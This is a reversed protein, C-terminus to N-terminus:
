QLTVRVDERNNHNLCSSAIWFAQVGAKRAAREATACLQRFDSETQFQNATYGVFIYNTLNRRRYLSWDSISILDHGELELSESNRLVFLKRPGHIRENIALLGDPSGDRAKPVAGDRKMQEDPARSLAQNHVQAEALTLSPDTSEKPKAELVNRTLKPYRNFRYPLPDYNGGNRM